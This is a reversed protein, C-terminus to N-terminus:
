SLNKVLEASIRRVETCPDGPPQEGARVYPIRASLLATGYSMDIGVYCRERRDPDLRDAFEM